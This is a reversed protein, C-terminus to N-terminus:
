GRPSCRSNSGCRARAGSGCRARAGGRVRPEEGSACDEDCHLPDDDHDLSVSDEEVVGEPMLLREGLVSSLLCARPTYFVRRGM